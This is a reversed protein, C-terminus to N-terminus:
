NLWFYYAIHGGVICALAINTKFCQLEIEKKLFVLEDCIYDMREEINECHKNLNNLKVYNENQEKWLDAVIDTDCMQEISSM